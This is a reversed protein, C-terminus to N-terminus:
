TNYRSFLRHDIHHILGGCIASMIIKLFNKHSNERVKKIEGIQNKDSM